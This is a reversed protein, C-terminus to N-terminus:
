LRNISGPLSGPRRICVPLPQDSARTTRRPSKM